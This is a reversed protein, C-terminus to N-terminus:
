AITVPDSLRYGYGRVAKVMEGQDGVRRRVLQMLRHLQYQDFGMGPWIAGGLEHHSAADPYRRALAEFALFESRSFQLVAGAPGILERTSCRLVYSPRSRRDMRLTSEDDSSLIGVLRMATNGVVWADGDVLTAAEVDHGNVRIQNLSRSADVV